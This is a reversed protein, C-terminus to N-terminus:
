GTVPEAQLRSELTHPPSLYARDHRVTEQPFVPQSQGFIWNNLFGLAVFLDWFCFLRFYKPLPSRPLAQGQPGTRIFIQLLCRAAASSAEASRSKCVLLSAEEVKTGGAPKGRRLLTKTQAAGSM